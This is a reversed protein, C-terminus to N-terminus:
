SPLKRKLECCDLSVGMFLYKKEKQQTESTKTTIIKTKTKNPM